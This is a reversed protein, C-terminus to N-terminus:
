WQGVTSRCKKTKPRVILHKPPIKDHWFCFSLLKDKGGHRRTQHNENHSDIIDGYIVISKFISRKYLRRTRKRKFPQNSKQKGKKYRIFRRLMECKMDHSRRVSLYKDYQADLGKRYACHNRQHAKHSRDLRMAKGAIQRDDSQLGDAQIEDHGIRQLKQHCSWYAPTDEM